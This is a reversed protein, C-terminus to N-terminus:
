TVTPDEASFRKALRIFVPLSMNNSDPLKMRDTGELSKLLIIGPLEMSTESTAGFGAQIVVSGGLPGIGQMRRRQRQDLIWEAPSDRAHLSTVVRAKQKRRLVASAKKRKPPFIGRQTMHQQPCFYTVRHFAGYGGGTSFDRKNGVLFIM